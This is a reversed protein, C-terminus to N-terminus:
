AQDLCVIYGGFCRTLSFLCRFLICFLSCVEDWFKSFCLWMDCFELFILVKIIEDFNKFFLYGRYTSRCAFLFLSLWSVTITINSSSYLFTLKYLHKCYLFLDFAQGFFFVSSWWSSSVNNSVFSCWGLFSFFILKLRSLITADADFM